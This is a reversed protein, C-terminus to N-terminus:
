RSLNITLESYNDADQTEKSYLVLANQNLTKIDFSQVGLLLKNESTVSYPVSADINELRFNATGTSTFDIYDGATGPTTTIDDEGNVRDNEIYSNVSWRHQLKTSTTEKDEKKCSASAIMLGLFLPLLLKRIM